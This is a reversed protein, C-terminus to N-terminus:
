ASVEKVNWEFLALLLAGMFISSDAINFAPWHHSGAYFDLFDTVSGQTIRDYLNGLAGGVILSFAVRTKLGSEKSKRAIFFLGILIAVSLGIFFKNQNQGMGFAAGTNELHTLNFFPLVPHSEGYFMHSKILVKTIRDFFFISLMTLLPVFKLFIMRDHVHLPFM